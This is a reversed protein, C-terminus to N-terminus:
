VILQDSIRNGPNGKDIKSDVQKKSVKRKGWSIGHPKNIEITEPAVEKKEAEIKVVNEVDEFDLEPEKKVDIQEKRPRRQEKKVPQTGHKDFGLDDLELVDILELQSELLHRLRRAFSDKQSKVVILENKMESLKIKADEFIKEAKLEAEKILVEAERHSNEKSEKLSTQASMLTDQLTKEVNQYDRLQTKLKLAEDALANKERILDEFQESIMELFADVEAPDYGRLNKKFEQKKVDLPTLRL